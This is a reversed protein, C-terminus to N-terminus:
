DLTSDGYRPTPKVIPGPKKDSPAEEKPRAVIQLIPEGPHVVFHPLVSEHVVFADCGARGSNIEDQKAKADSRSLPGWMEATDIVYWEAETGDPEPAANQIATEDLVVDDGVTVVLPKAALNEGKPKLTIHLTGDDAFFWTVIFPMSVNAAWTLREKDALGIVYCYAEKEIMEVTGLSTSSTHIRFKPQGVGPPSYEVKHHILAREISDRTYLKPM